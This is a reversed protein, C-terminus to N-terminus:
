IQRDCKGVNEHDYNIKIYYKQQDKSANMSFQLDSLQKM